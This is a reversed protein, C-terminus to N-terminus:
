GAKHTYFDLAMQPISETEKEILRQMARMFKVEVEKDTKGIVQIKATLRSENLADIANRLDQKIM